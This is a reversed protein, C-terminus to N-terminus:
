QQAGKLMERELANSPQAKDKSGFGSLSTLKDVARQNRAEDDRTVMNRLDRVARTETESM